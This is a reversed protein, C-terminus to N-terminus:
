DTEFGESLLLEIIRGSSGCGIDIAADRRETFRIARRHQDIGNQRNFTDGDWHSALNDYSRATESPNM